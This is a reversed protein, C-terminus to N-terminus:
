CCPEDGDCCSNAATITAEFGDGKTERPDRIKLRRCDFESAEDLSIEQHPEIVEFLDAYPPLQILRTLKECVAMRQGRVFMHGDDDEVRRFPGKYVVAQNRDLCPGAKGKWAIVTMSRFEIGEITQWPESQRKAITVGHFGADVFAELFLDERFAGSLCGSWLYGDQQMHEPVTEDSVIDSIVARGGRKLVRFIEAFLQRRDQQRVLNLVCNSVVCDISDDAVLPRDRRLQEELQRGAIWDISSQVPKDALRADLLDLDLQLDQILGYRFEVNSYGIKSAIEEQYKRSLTLMETNCDVGIVRGNPGVKQSMIYCLKGAGAGLDLVTDGVNVWVSPDGCGYDKEIIEQPVVKLYQGTYQVPCCLAPEVQKSAAAYRDYVSTEASEKSGTHINLSATM